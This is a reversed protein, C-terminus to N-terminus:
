SLYGRGVLQFDLIIALFRIYYSIVDNHDIKCASLYVSVSALKTYWIFGFFLFFNCSFMFFFLTALNSLSHIGPMGPQNPDGDAAYFVAYIQHITTVLLCIVNCVQLRVSTESSDASFFQRIADQVGYCNM